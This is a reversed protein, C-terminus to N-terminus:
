HTFRKKTTPGRLIDIVKQGALCLVAGQLRLWNTQWCNNVEELQAQLQNIKQDKEEAIKVLEEKSLNSYNDAYSTSQMLFSLFIISFLLKQM